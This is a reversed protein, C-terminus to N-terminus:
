KVTVGLGKKREKSDKKKTTKRMFSDLGGKSQLEEYKSVLEAEKRKAKSMYFPKEGSKLKEKKESNEAEAQARKVQNQAEARLQNEMRQILYKVEERREHDEETRLQKKLEVLEKSKVENVFQYSEKFLKDNFEGCLPDFRPDRREKKAVQVVERFRGVTKKSSMERPRNKNDRKFEVKKGREPATGELKQQFLKLGLREKLKQIDEISMKSLQDRYKKRAKEEKSEETTTSTDPDLKMKKAPSSQSNEETKEESVLTNNELKDNEQDDDESEEEDEDGLEDSDEESSEGGEEAEKEKDPSGEENAAIPVNQDEDVDDDSESGSTSDGGIDALQSKLKSLKLKQEESLKFDSKTVVEEESEESSSDIDEESADSESDGAGTKLPPSQKSRTDQKLLGVKAQFDGLGEEDSDSTDDDFAFDQVKDATRKKTM